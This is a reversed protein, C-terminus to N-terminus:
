AHRILILVSGYMFFVYTRNDQSDRANVDAGFEVKLKRVVDM